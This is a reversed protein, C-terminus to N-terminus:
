ILWTEVNAVPQHKQAAMLVKASRILFWVSLLPFLLWGLLGFTLLTLLGALIGWAMGMWFTRILYRFLNNEWETRPDGKWVYAFILGVLVTIGTVISGIYLLAVITPRNMDFGDTPVPETM